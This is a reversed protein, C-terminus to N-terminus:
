GRDRPSPSTYLLCCIATIVQHHSASLNKLTEEAETRNIPKGIVQDGLVVVTDAAFIIANKPVVEFVSRAKQTALSQVYELPSENEHKIRENGIPDVFRFDLGFQHLMQKRRPSSTAFVTIKKQKNKEDMHFSDM